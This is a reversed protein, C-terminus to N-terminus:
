FVLVQLGSYFNPNMLDISEFYGITPTNIKAYIADLGVIESVKISDWVAVGTSGSRLYKGNAQKGDNYRFSAIGSVEFKALPLPTGIGVNGVNTIVLRQFGETGLIVKGTGHLTLDNPNGGRVLDSGKGIEGAGKVKLLVPPKFTMVQGFCTTSILLLFALINKM